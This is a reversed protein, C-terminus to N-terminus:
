SCSSTPPFTMSMTDSACVVLPNTRFRCAANARGSAPMTALGSSSSRSASGNGRQSKVVVGRVDAIVPRTVTRGLHLTVGAARTDRWISNEDDGKWLAKSLPPRNYPAEPEASILGVTGQSDIERIGKAAADATMGGGVILYTYHPM